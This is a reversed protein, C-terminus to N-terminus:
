NHIQISGGGIPQTNGLGDNGTNAANYGIMNDYVINSSSDTIKIRFGNPEACTLMFNYQTTGNNITGTGKYQAQKGSVVLWQYVSGHFAFNAVQFNFETNGTPVNAGKQYKSVFGFSAQGSLTRSATYSGAMSNIWGGGTVFGATPDYVVAQGLLNGSLTNAIDIGGAGDNLTIAISYVNAIAFSTSGTAIGASATGSVSGAAKGDGDVFSWQASTASGTYSAKLSVSAGAAFINSTLAPATILAGSPATASPTSTSTFFNPTPSYTAVINHQGIGLTSLQIQAVGSANLTVSTPLINNTSSDTFTVVGAPIAPSGVSSINATLTVMVANANSSL